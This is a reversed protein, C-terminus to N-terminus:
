HFPLRPFLPLYACRRRFFIPRTFSPCVKGIPFLARKRPGRRLGACRTRHPSSACRFSRMKATLHFCAIHLKHRRPGDVARKRKPLVFLFHPTSDDWRAPACFTGMGRCSAPWSAGVRGAQARGGCRSAFLGAAQKYRLGSRSRRSSPVMKAGGVRGAQASGGCRSAFLGAAQKYRLGSRSRRSSPVM